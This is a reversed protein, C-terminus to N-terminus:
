HRPGSNAGAGAKSLRARTAALDAETDVGAPAAAISAVAIRMGAELARLQELKEATELPSPPLAVFSALAERRWGYVGIHHYFPSDGHPVAARSFYLARGLNQGARWSVVAKVVQSLAAEEANAPTVLTSLEAGSERVTDLLTVAIAPDMEPLDGQLNLIVDFRGDPDIRSVAEFTRDSGSPHDERTMVAEGGAERIASAIEEHDTAVWVPAIDAAIAREWVHRIMPKGGIDALPKGPLRSAAMRAPIIIVPSATRTMIRCNMVYEAM